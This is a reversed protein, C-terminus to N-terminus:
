GFVSFLVPLGIIYRKAHGIYSSRQKQKKTFLFYLDLSEYILFFYIM